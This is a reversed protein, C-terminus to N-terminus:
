RDTDTQAGDDTKAMELTQEIAEKMQIFIEYDKKMAELVEKQGQESLEGQALKIRDMQLNYITTLQALMTKDPATTCIAYYLKVIGELHELDRDALLLGLLQHMMTGRAVRMTWFRGIDQLKYHDVEKTIVFNGLRTDRKELKVIGDKIKM